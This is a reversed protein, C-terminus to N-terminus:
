SDASDAPDHLEQNAACSLVGAAIRSGFLRPNVRSELGLHSEWNIDFDPHGVIWWQQWKAFDTGFSQGTLLLLMKAREDDARWASHRLAKILYPVSAPDGLAGLYHAANMWLYDDSSKLHQLAIDRAIESHREALVGYASNADDREPHMVARLYSQSSVVGPLYMDAMFGMPGLQAGFFHIVSLGIAGIAVLAINRKIKAKPDM